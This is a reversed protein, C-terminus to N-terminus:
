RLWNGMNKQFILEWTFRPRRSKKIISCINLNMIKLNEVVPLVENKVYEETTKAIMKHEDNFDEPTFVRNQTLDEVLFAGGKIEGKLENM